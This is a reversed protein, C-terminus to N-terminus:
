GPDTGVALPRVPDNAWQSWSGPWLAAEIGAVALAAVEHAATVGSGRYAAVPRGPVVGLRVFRETLVGAPDATILVPATM